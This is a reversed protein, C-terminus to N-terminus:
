PMPHCAQCNATTIGVAQSHPIKPPDTGTTKHCATCNTSTTHDSPRHLVVHRSGTLAISSSSTHCFSCNSTADREVYTPLTTYSSNTASDIHCTTCHTNIAGGWTGTHSSPATQSHCSACSNTSTAGAHCVACSARNAAAALPHGTTSVWTSNHTYPKQETHCDICQSQSHCTACTQSDTRAARSHAQLIWGAVHTKPAERQHCSACDNGRAATHCLACTGNKQTDTLGKGHTEIWNVTHSVPPGANRDAHCAICSSRTPLMEDGHAGVKDYVKHCSLCDVKAAAHVRHDFSSNPMLIKNKRVTSSFDDNSHCKTCSDTGKEMDVEDAHCTGCTDMDPFAMLRPNSKSPSHCIDCGLGLDLKFQHNIIIGHRPKSADDADANKMPAAAAFGLALAAFFASAILRLLTRGPAAATRKNTYTHDM